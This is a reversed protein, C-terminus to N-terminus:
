NLMLLLNQAEAAKAALAAPEAGERAQISLLLTLSLLVIRKM